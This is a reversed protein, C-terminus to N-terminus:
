KKTPKIPQSPIVPTTPAITTTEIVSMIPIPPTKLEAQLARIKDKLPDIIANNDNQLKIIVNEHVKELKKTVAEKIAIEKKDFDAQLKYKIVKSSPLQVKDGGNLTSIVSKVRNGLESLSLMEQLAFTKKITGNGKKNTGITKEGKKRPPPVAHYTVKLEVRGRVMTTEKKTTM